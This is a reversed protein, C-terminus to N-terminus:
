RRLVVVEEQEVLQAARELLGGAERERVQVELDVLLRLVGQVEEAAALSEMERHRGVVVLELWGLIRRLEEQAELGAWCALMMQVVEVASLLLLQQGQQVAEAAGRELVLPLVVQEEVTLPALQQEERLM